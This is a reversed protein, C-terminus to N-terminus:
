CPQHGWDTEKLEKECLAMQEEPTLAVPPLPAPEEGGQAQAPPPPLAFPAPPVVPPDAPPPVGPHMPGVNRRAAAATVDCGGGAGGMKTMERRRGSKGKFRGPFRKLRYWRDGGGNPRTTTDAGAGEYTQKKGMLLEAAPCDTMADCGTAVGDDGGCGADVPIM